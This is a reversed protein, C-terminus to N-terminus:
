DINNSPFSKKIKSQLLINETEEKLKKYKNIFNKSLLDEVRELNKDIWYYNCLMHLFIHCDKFPELQRIKEPNQIYDRVKKQEETVNVYKCMSEKLNLEKLYKEAREKGEKGIADMHDLLTLLALCRNKNNHKRNGGPHNKIAYEIWERNPNPLKSYFDKYEKGLIIISKLNHCDRGDRNGIDHLIVAYKLAEIIKKVNKKQKISSKLRTFHKYVKKVHYIGHIRKPVKKLCKRTIEWAEKELDKDKKM